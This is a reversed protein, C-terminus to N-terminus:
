HVRETEEAEPRQSMRGPSGISGPETSTELLQELSAPIDLLQLSSGRFALGDKDRRPIPPGSASTHQSKRSSRQDRPSEVDPMARLESSDSRDSSARRSCAAPVTGSAGLVCLDGAPSRIQVTPHTARHRWAANTAQLSCGPMRTSSAAM